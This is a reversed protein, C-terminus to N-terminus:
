ARNNTLTGLFYKCPTQVNLTCLVPHAFILHSFHNAPNPLKFQDLKSIKPKLELFKSPNFASADETWKRRLYNELEAGKQGDVKKVLEWIPRLTMNIPYANAENM